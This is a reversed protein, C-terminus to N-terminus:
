ASMRAGRLFHHDALTFIPEIVGFITRRYAPGAKQAAVLAQERLQSRQAEYENQDQRSHRQFDEFAMIEEERTQNDM